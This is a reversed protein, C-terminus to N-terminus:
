KCQIFQVPLWYFEQQVLFNPPPLLVSKAVLDQMPFKTPAANM